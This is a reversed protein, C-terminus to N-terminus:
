LKGLKRALEAFRGTLQIVENYIYQNILPYYKRIKVLKQEFVVGPEPDETLTDMWSVGDVSRIAAANVASRYLANYANTGEEDKCSRFVRIEDDTNLTEIVITHEFLTFTKTLRGLTMLHQFDRREEPTLETIIDKEAEKAADEVTEPTAVEEDDPDVRIPGDGDMSSPLALGDTEAEDVVPEDQHDSM